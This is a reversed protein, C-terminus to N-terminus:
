LLVDRFYSFVSRDGGRLIGSGEVAHLASEPPCEAAATESRQGPRKNGRRKEKQINKADSLFPCCPECGPCRHAAPVSWITIKEEEKNEQEPFAVLFSFVRRARGEPALPRIVSHVKKEQGSVSWTPYFNWPNLWCVSSRWVNATNCVGHNGPSVDGIEGAPALSGIECDSRPCPQCHPSRSIRLQRLKRVCLAVEAAAATEAM